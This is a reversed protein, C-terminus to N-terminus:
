PIKLTRRELKMGRDQLWLSILIMSLSLLGWLIEHFRGPYRFLLLGAVLAIGGFAGHAWTVGRLRAIYDQSFSAWAGSKMFYFQSLVSSLAVLFAAFM